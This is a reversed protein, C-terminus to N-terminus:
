LIKSQKIVARGIIQLQDTNQANLIFPQITPNESALIISDGTRYFRKLTVEDGNIRVVAVQGNEVEKQAKVFVIDGDNIGIGIMSDGKVHLCFDADETCPVYGEFDEDSIVPEGAATTGLLPVKKLQPIFVNPDEPIDVYDRETPQEQWGMLWAPSVHLAAAFEEVKARTIDRTGAEIRAITSRSTYGTLEALETQTMGLEIRRNKIREYLTM